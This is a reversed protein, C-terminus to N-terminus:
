FGNKRGKEIAGMVEVSPNGHGNLDNSISRFVQRIGWKKIPVMVTPRVLQSINIRLYEYCKRLFRDLFPYFIRYITKAVLILEPSM